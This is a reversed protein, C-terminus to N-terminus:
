EVNEVQERLRELEDKIEVVLHAIAANNAKSGITNAERHMEQVLFSLRKGVAEAGQSALLDAFLENHSRFRVLEENVDWREALIVIEQAVRQEDVRGSSLLEDVAAQLRHREAEVREPALESIRTLAAEIARLRGRLDAELRRGEEERMVVVSAAAAQFIARIEGADIDAPLEEPDSRVIVDNFRLITALDPAGEVGHRESLERFLQLYNTVRADDLKFAVPSAGVGNLEWRATCNIHGRSFSDRFWDRLDGEFRSLAAPLRSNVNLYRHNVSRIEVRLMGAATNGAAEGFGTMSRIMARCNLHARSHLHLAFLVGDRSGNETQFAGSDKFGFGCAPWPRRCLWRM